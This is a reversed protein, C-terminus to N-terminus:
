SRKERSETEIKEKMKLVMDGYDAHVEELRELKQKQQDIMSIFAGEIVDESEGVMRRIDSVTFGALLLQRIRIFLLAQEKRYSRVGSLNDVTEPKLLGVRDYYRLTETSCQCFLAFERITM